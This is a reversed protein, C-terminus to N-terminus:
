FTATGGNDRRAHLDDTVDFRRPDELDISRHLSGDLAGSLDHEPPRPDDLAINLGFFDDEAPANDSGDRRRLPDLDLAVGDDFAIHVRPADNHELSSKQVSVNPHVHGPCLAGRCRDGWQPVNPASVLLGKWVMHHSWRTRGCRVVARMGVCCPSKWARPLKEEM